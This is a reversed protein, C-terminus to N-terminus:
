KDITYASVSGHGTGPSAVENASYLHTRTKDLELWSPNLPTAFVERPTLAGTAPNMEFSHIGQGRGPASGPASYTGIYARIPQSSSSGRAQQDAAVMRVGAAFMAAAGLFRRRTTVSM